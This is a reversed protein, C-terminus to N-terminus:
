FAVNKFFPLVLIETRSTLISEICCKKGKKKKKQKKKTNGAKMSGHRTPHPLHMKASKKLHLDVADGNLSETLVGQQPAVSRLVERMHTSYSSWGNTMRGGECLSLWVPVKQHM